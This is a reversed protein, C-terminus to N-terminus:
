FILHPKADALRLILEGFLSNAWSFWQRTFDGVNDKSFSEHMFGTSSGARKLIELCDVIEEDKTSTLAQMIIGMHWINGLGTHPSGIGHGATGNFFFPNKTGDLIQARTAQYRADTERVYGLYPLSLLSPVNADDMLIRNGYGDVEYSFTLNGGERHVTGYKIIGGDIEAVLKEVERVLEEKGLEMLLGITGGLEVVAMANAPIHFPYTCADDSPRFGSIFQQM